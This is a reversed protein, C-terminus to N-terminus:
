YRPPSGSSRPGGPAANRPPGVWGLASVQPGRPEDPPEAARCGRRVSLKGVLFGWARRIAEAAKAACAELAQEDEDAKLSAERREREIEVLRNAYRHALILQQRVLEANETPAKAGYSYARTTMRPAPRRRDDPLLGHTEWIQKLSSECSKM